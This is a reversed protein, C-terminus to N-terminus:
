TAAHARRRRYFFALLLLLLIIGLYPASATFWLLLRDPFFPIVEAVSTNKFMVTKQYTGTLAADYDYVDVIIRSSGELQLPAVVAEYATNDKNIRLLFSSTLRSDTPDTFTVIITKLNDSLAEKPISLTFAEQSNLTIGEDAFTRALPDQTLFIDSLEPLYTNGGVPAGPIFGDAPPMVMGGAGPQGTQIPENGEGPRPIIVGSGPVGTGQGAYVKAIAGSSVNGAADVVFATYYVPSYQRLIDKDTFSTGLGQYIVAGDSPYLPFRLHSRVIRVSEFQEGIPLQWSLAVDTSDALAQFRSVNAPPLFDALRLTTFSGRKLVYDKGIASYGVIEYEYRTGPELDTITTEFTDVFRDNVIYGLEFSSTRGWRLEFRAPRATKIFFSTTLVGPTVILEDLNVRTATSTQNGDDAAEPPPPALTTATATNSSSSYNFSPDFAQVYYGYTTSAALGLDSYSTQTTTAVAVGNRYVVYGSVVFNDTSIGWTLDIQDTSVASASLASPATPAVIDDAGFVKINFSGTDSQAFAGALPVLFCLLLACFNKM